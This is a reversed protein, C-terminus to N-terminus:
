SVAKSTQRAVADHDHLRRGEDIVLQAFNKSVGNHEAYKTVTLYNNTFDHYVEKLIKRLM